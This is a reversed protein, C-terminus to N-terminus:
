AINRGLKLAMQRNHLIVNFFPVPHYEDSPIPILKLIEEELEKSLYNEKDSLIM